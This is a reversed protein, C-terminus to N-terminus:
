KQLQQDVDGAGDAEEEVDFVAPVLVGPVCVYWCHWNMHLIVRYTFNLNHGNRKSFSATNQAFRL